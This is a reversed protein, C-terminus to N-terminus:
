ASNNVPEQEDGLSNGIIIKNSSLFRIPPVKLKM